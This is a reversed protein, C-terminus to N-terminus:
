GGVTYLKDINPNIAGNATASNIDYIVHLQIILSLNM